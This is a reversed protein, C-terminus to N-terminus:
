VARHALFGARHSASYDISVQPIAQSHAAQCLEVYGSWSLTKQGADRRARLQDAIDVWSQPLRVAGYREQLLRAAAKLEPLFRELGDRQKASCATPTQLRTFGHEGPM